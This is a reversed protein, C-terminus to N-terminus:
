MEGNFLPEYKHADNLAKAIATSLDNMGNDYIDSEMFYDLNMGKSINHEDMLRVYVSILADEIARAVEEKTVM